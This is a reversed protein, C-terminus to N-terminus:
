LDNVAESLFWARRGTEDMWTEILRTTAVDRYEECIRHAQRLLRTLERTLGSNLCCRRRRLPIRITIKSASVIPSTGISRLTTGGIKRAREAIDDTMAFIKNRRSMWSSITTV